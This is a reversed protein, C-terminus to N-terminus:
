GGGGDDTGVRDGDVAVPQVDELYEEVFRALVKSEARHLTESCTSKAVGMRDALETLTCTRPSDYCGAALATALLRQQHDTLLQEVGSGRRVYEVTFEIGFSSLQEGLTSLRDESTTVEWVAEGDSLEFPLELPVGSSQVPFLLAPASTELQVLATDDERRLEALEAV